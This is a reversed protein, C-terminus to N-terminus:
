RIGVLEVEFILTENPGIDSGVGREGYAQTSPIYIEWKSGVPMLVLAERWGAILSVVKLDIPHESDTADFETGDLLTGRYFVKVVDSDTPKAGTGKKIIKYQVGSPLEVVGKKTRNEALFADGKKKNDEKALRKSLLTKQRVENRFNGLIERLERESYLLKEGSLGTQIGQYLFKMDLETDQKRLNRGISVGIGYSLKEKDTTLVPAEESYAQGAFAVLACFLTIKLKIM